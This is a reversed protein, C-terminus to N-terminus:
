NKNVINNLKPLTIQFNTDKAGAAAWLPMNEDFGNVIITKISKKHGFPPVGGISHGTIEKVEDANAMEGGIENLNLRQDGPCLYLIFEDEKKVLLSKIINCVPVMHAKAAEKATTTATKSKVPTINLNQKKIFELFLAVSM